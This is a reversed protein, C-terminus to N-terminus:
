SRLIWLSSFKGSNQMMMLIAIRYVYSLLLCTSDIKNPRYIGKLLYVAHM